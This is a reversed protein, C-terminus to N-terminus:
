LWERDVSIIEADTNSQIFGLVNESISDAQASDAAIAAASLELICLQDQAGTESVSVNFKSRLRALLSKVESRKDKLSHCWPAHLTVTLKVIIM